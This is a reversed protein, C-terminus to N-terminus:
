QIYAIGRKDIESLFHAFLSVPDSDYIDQYRGVPSLKIGVRKTGFVEILIDIIELPFRVINEISGGYQDTRQNTGDRLFQDILYGNACDLEVGDFVLKNPM